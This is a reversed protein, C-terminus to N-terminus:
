STRRENVQILPCIRKKKATLFSWCLSLWGPDKPPKPKGLSDWYEQMKRDRKIKRNRKRDPQNWWREILVITFYMAAVIGAVAAITGFTWAAVAVMGVHQILLGVGAVAAAALLGLMVWQGGNEMWTAAARVGNGIGNGVRRAGRKHWSKNHTVLWIPGWLPLTVLLFAGVVLLCLGIAGYLLGLGVYYGPTFLMIARMYHCLNITMPPRRAINERWHQYIRYHWSTESVTLM